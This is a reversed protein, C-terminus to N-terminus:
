SDPAAGVLPMVLAVVLGQNAANRAIAAAHEPPPSSSGAPPGSAPRIDSGSPLGSAPRGLSSHAAVQPPQQSPSAHRLPVEGFAQPSSPSAHATQSGPKTHPSPPQVTSRVERQSTRASLALTKSSLAPPVGHSAPPPRGSGYTSIFVLSPTSSRSPVVSALPSVRAGCHFWTTSSSTGAPASTSLPISVVIRSS